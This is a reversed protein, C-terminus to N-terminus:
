TVIGKADERGGQLGIIIQTLLKDTQECRDKDMVPVDNRILKLVAAQGCSFVTVNM